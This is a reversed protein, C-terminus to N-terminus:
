PCIRVGRQMMSEAESPQKHLYWLKDVLEQASACAVLMQEAFPYSLVYDKKLPNDYVSIVLRRNVMAELMALNQSVFAYNSGAFFQSPNEASVHGHFRVRVGSEAASEQLQPSLSGDGYVDFQLDLGHQLKLMKVAELYTVIGTDPELRGVFVASNPDRPYEVQSPPEVGGYVVRPCGTGYWKKIYDGGCLHDTCMHEALRRLCVISRPIPFVGENGYFTVYVPKRPFIFRFPLYWFVFTGWDHCHIADAQQLMRRYAAIACFMRLGATFRIPRNHLRWADPVAFRYIEIGELSETTALGPAHLPAIVSVKLGQCVLRKAVQRVFREVGGSSPYFKPVLM